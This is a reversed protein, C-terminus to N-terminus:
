FTPRIKRKKPKTYHTWESQLFTVREELKKIITKNKEM